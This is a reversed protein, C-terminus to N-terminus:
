FFKLESQAEVSVNDGNQSILIIGNQIALERVPPTIIPSAIAIIAKKDRAFVKKFDLIQENLLKYIDNEHAKQKVEIMAAYKGNRMVIDYERNGDSVNKLVEDFKINNLEKNKNLHQYFMIEKEEGANNQFNGFIVGMGALREDNRKMIERLEKYGETQLLRIEEFEKRSQEENQKLREEFREDNEKQLLRIEEFERNSKEENQRAREENEKQLLRIKAFEEESRKKSEENSEKQSIRMNEQSIRMNELALMFKEFATNFDFKNVMYTYELM